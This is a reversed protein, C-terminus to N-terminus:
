PQTKAKIEVGLAGAARSPWTADITNDNFAWEAFLDGVTSEGSGQQGIATFGSGAAAIPTANAIGFVGYAVNAAAAFSALSVTLGTVAAGTSSGTQVIAGAGNAGSTEVGQWQSVIWQCNSVTVSSTITIPGSGPSASMARYISVRDLPTAGNYAVTAVLVWGAMGGGTLTPASAAASSQHTLVAVTVLANPAPAISATTYIRVNNVDTGSTLLTQSIPGGSGSTINFATSTIGTLGTAAATLKYGIGAADISLTSFTAVGGVAAVTTTGSLTGGGPNVGIALTIDNTANSVRNGFQDHVAVQVAPAITAGTGTTSPQVTFALAAPVDPIVTVTATQTIAVSNIT